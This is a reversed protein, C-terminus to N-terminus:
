RQCRQFEAPGDNVPAMPALEGARLRLGVLWTSQAMMLRAPRAGGYALGVAATANEKKCKSYNLNM